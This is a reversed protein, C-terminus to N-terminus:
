APRRLPEVNEIHDTRGLAVVYCAWAKLATKRQDLYQGRQYVAAIGRVTSSVHNLIRDIVVPNLGLDQSAMTAFTRRLDHFCWGTVGSDTGLRARARSFGSVSTTLTTTFLFEVDYRPLTRLVELAAPALHVVHEVGNKARGGPITWIGKDLDFESWRADSVERLRQGTLILLQTMPGFPYGERGAANWVLRLEEPTLVRDRSQESSPAEMSTLPSASVYDRGAAWTFMRRLRSFVRNAEVPAHRDIIADLLRHIDAKGVAAIDMQGIQPLVDKRFSREVEAASRNCSQDRKLWESVVMEVSRKATAAAKPRTGKRLEGLVKVAELRANALSMAPFEGLRGRVLKGDARGLVSWSKRGTPEVRLRLGRVTADPYETRDNSPRVKDVFTATLPKETLRPM